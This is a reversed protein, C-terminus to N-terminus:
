DVSLQETVIEPRDLSYAAALRGRLDKAVDSMADFSTAGRAYIWSWLQAARMNLQKAPVGIAALAAKLGDRDLGALSPLRAPASAS